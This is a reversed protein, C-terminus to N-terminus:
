VINLEEYHDLELLYFTFGEFEALDSFPDQDRHHRWSDDKCKGHLLDQQQFSGVGAEEQEELSWEFSVKRPPCVTTSTKIENSLSVPPKQTVKLSSEKESLLSTPKSATTKAKQRVMDRCLSPEDRKFCPHYYSGKDPGNRTIRHFGWLNLQRQFSKYKSQKKFFLPLIISVFDSVNHVKFAKGHPLWSVISNSEKGDVSISSASTRQLMDHLKWPFLLNGNGETRSSDDDKTRDLPDAIAIVSKPSPPPSSMTEM